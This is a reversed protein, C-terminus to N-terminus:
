QQSGESRSLWPLQNGCVLLWIFVAIEWAFFVIALILSLREFSTMPTDPEQDASHALIPLYLLLTLIVLVGFAFKLIISAYTFGLASRNKAQWKLGATISLGALILSIPVDLIAFLMAPWYMLSDPQEGVGSIFTHLISFVLYFPAVFLFYNGVLTAMMPWPTVRAHTNIEIGQPASYPNM